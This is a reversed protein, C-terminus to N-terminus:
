AVVTGTQYGSALPALSASLQAVVAPRVQWRGLRRTETDAQAFAVFALAIGHDAMTLLETIDGTQATAPATITAVARADQKLAADTVRTRRGEFDIQVGESTRFRWPSFSAGLEVEATPEDVKLSWHMEGGHTLLAAVCIPEPASLLFAVRWELHQATRPPDTTVSTSRWEASVVVPMRRVENALTEV